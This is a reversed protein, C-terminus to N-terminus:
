NANRDRTKLGILILAIGIGGVVAFPAFERPYYGIISMKVIFILCLLGGVALLGRALKSKGTSPM